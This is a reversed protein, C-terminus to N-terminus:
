LLLQLTCKENLIKMSPVSLIGTLYNVFKMGTGSIGAGNCHLQGQLVGTQTKDACSLIDESACISTPKQSPPHVQVFKSNRIEAALTQLHM